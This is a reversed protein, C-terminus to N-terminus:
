LWVVHYATTDKSVLKHYLYSIGQEISIRHLIWIQGQFPAWLRDENLSIRILTIPQYGILHNTHRMMYRHQPYCVPERSQKNLIYWFSVCLHLFLFYYEWSELTTGWRLVLQALCHKVESLLRSATSDYHYPREQYYRIDKLIYVM